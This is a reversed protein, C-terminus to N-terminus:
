SYYGSRSVNFYKCLDIISYSENKMGDIISFRSNKTFNDIIQKSDNIQIETQIIESSLGSDNLRM